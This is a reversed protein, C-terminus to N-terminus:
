ASGGPRILGVALMAVGIMATGFFLPRLWATKGRALVWQCLADVGLLGLWLIGLLQVWRETLLSQDLHLAGIGAFLALFAAPGCLL